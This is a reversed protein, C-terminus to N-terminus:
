FVEPSGSMRIGPSGSSRFAGPTIGAQRRFARVFYGPSTFGCATAVESISADGATLLTMARSLRHELQWRKPPIGMVATFRRSLASRDMRLRRAISEVTCGPDALGDQLRQAVAAVQPDDVASPGATAATLLEWGVGAATREAMPSPDGLLRDLRDFLAVPPPGAVLAVAAVLGFAAVCASALPGDFTAWRYDVGERGADLHHPEDPLYVTAQGTSAAVHQRGRHLVLEGRDIWYLQVFPRGPIRDIAIGPGIRHWGVSRVGFPLAVRPVPAPRFRGHRQDGSAIAM